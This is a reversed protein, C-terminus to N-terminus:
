NINERELLIPINGQLRELLEAISGYILKREEVDRGKILFTVL